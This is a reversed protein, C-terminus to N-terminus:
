DILRQLLMNRCEDVNSIRKEITGEEDLIATEGV